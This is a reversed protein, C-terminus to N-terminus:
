RLIPSLLEKVCDDSLQQLPGILPSLYANSRCADLFIRLNRACNLVAHPSAERDKCKLGRWYSAEMGLWRTSFHETNKCLRLDRLADFIYDLM